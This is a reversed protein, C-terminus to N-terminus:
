AIRRFWDYPASLNMTPSSSSDGWPHMTLGM